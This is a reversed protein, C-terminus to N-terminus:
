NLEQYRSQPQNDDKAKSVYELWTENLFRHADSPSLGTQKLSSAYNLTATKLETWQDQRIKFFKKEAEKKGIRRGNRKPYTLWWAEFAKSFLETNTNDNKPTNPTNTTDKPQGKTTRQNDKAQGTYSDMCQYFDYDCITVVSCHTDPKIDLNGLIELKEMINRVTSPPMCLKEAAKFRGFVFQGRKLKVISTGRGTSVPVSKAKHNAQILCWIWVKLWKENQFIDSEDLSRAVLVCGRSLDM